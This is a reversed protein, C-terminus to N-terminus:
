IIIINCESDSYVKLNYRDTLVYGVDCEIWTDNSATVVCMYGLEEDVIVEVGAYCFINNNM